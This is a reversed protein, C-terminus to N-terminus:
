KAFMLDFAIKVEDKIAKDGLDKIFSGSSYTIGWKTRDIEIEGEIEVKDNKEGVYVILTIENSIEKVTLDGIVTYTGSLEKKDRNKNIITPTFKALPYKEVEFFDKSNIHDLFSENNKSETISTMDIILPSVIIEGDKLEIFGENVSVTGIHPTGIIRTAEYSIISDEKLNLTHEGIKLNELSVKKIMDNNKSLNEKVISKNLYFLTGSILVLIIILGIIYKLM